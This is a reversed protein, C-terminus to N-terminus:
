STANFAAIWNTASTKYIVLSRLTPLTLAADASGGNFTQSAGPYILASTASSNYIIMPGSGPRSAALVFATAGGTATVVTMNQSIAAAGVQATGVGAVTPPTPFGIRNAQAPPMGVGILVAAAPM